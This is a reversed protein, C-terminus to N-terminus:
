RPVQYLSDLIWKPAYILGTDLDHVRIRDVFSTDSAELQQMIGTMLDDFYAWLTDGFVSQELAAYRNPVDPFTVGNEIAPANNLLATLREIRKVMLSDPEDGAHNRPQRLSPSATTRRSRGM